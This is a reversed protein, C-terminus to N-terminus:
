ASLIDGKNDEVFYGIAPAIAVIKMRRANPYSRRFHFRAEAADSVIAYEIGTEVPDPKGKVYREFCIAYLPKKDSSSRNNYARLNRALSNNALQDM